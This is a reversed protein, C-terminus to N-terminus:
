SKEVPPHEVDGSMFGDPDQEFTRLCGTHCFFIREGRYEANPYKDPDKIKGGCATKYEPFSTQKTESLITM